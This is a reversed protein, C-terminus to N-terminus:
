NLMLNMYPLAKAAERYSLRDDLLKLMGFPYSVGSKGTLFIKEVGLRRQLLGAAHSLAGWPLSTEAIYYADNRLTGALYGDGDRGSYCLIEGGSFLFERFRFECLSPYFDFSGSLGRLMARRMALFAEEGCSELRGEPLLQPAVRIRGLFFRTRYGLKAYMRFLEESAPVLALCSAGAHRAFRVAEQELRTMAGQGRYEPDTAVAYVYEADYSVGDVTLVSPLLFLMSVLRTGDWATLAHAAPDVASFFLDVTERSDGFATMWLRRLVDYESPAPRRLNLNM